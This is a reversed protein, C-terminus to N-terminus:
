VNVAIPRRPYKDFPSSAFASETPNGCNHAWKGHRPSFIFGVQRMSKCMSRAPKKAFAVWVWKGVFEADLKHKLCFSIVQVTSVSSNEVPKSESM